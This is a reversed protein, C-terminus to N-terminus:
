RKDEVKEGKGIYQQLEEEKRRQVCVSLCSCCLFREKGKKLKRQDASEDGGAGTRLPGSQKM